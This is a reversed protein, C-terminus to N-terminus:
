QHNNVFGWVGGGSREMRKIVTVWHANVSDCLHQKWIMICMCDHVLEYIVIYARNLVQEFGTGQLKYQSEAM